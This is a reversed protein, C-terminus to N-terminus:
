IPYFVLIICFACFQCSTHTHVHTHTHNHKGVQKAAIAGLHILLRCGQIELGSIQETGLPIAHESLQINLFGTGSCIRHALSHLQQLFLFLFVLFCQKLFSVVELQKRTVLPQKTHKILCHKVVSAFWLAVRFLIHFNVLFQFLLQKSTLCFRYGSCSMLM